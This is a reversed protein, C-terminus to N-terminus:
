CKRLISVKDKSSSFVRVIKIHRSDGTRGNSVNQQFTDSALYLETDLDHVNESFFRENKGEEEKKKESM